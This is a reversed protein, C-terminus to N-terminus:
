QRSTADGEATADGDLAFVEDDATRFVAIDGTATRVVRSGLVPIDNLTGIEVWNSM